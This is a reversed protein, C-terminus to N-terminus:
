LTELSLPHTLLVLQLLTPDTCDLLSWGAQDALRPKFWPFVILDVVVIMLIM